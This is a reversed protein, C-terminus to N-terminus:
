KKIRILFWVLPLLFNIVMGALVTLATGIVGYNTIMYFGLIGIVFFHAISIWVFIDSRGYYFIISNHLPVSILFITMALVLIVFPIIANLYDVGYMLPIVYFSLPLFIIIIVSLGLVLLQFKKFFRLMESKNHFSAFKPAAVVGLAGVIQPIVQTLQSASAYIGVDNSSLLRANLFTDFRSSVAAIITFLAVWKNFKFFQGAVQIENKTSLIQKIPLFMLSLSFGFFPLAVYFILGNMLNLNQNFILLFIIVIRLLNTSINVLGWVFYKQLAQLSSTSYTFLLAGGVGVMVLRMPIILEKRQFVIEALFPTAFFGIVLILVWIVFKIELGLRLFKYAKDKESAIHSSVFRILGTNTGLDSIDSILTLTAVCIALLGFDAPGLFRAMLIYFLAGLGGNLITAVITIQSQKWTTTSLIRKLM